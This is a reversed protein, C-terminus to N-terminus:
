RLLKTTARTFGIRNRGFSAAGRENSSAKSRIAVAVALNLGSFILISSTAREPPATSSVSYGGLWRSGGGQGEERLGKLIGTRSLISICHQNKMGPPPAMLRASLLHIGQRPPTGGTGASRACARSFSSPRPHDSFWDPWRSRKYVNLSKAWA